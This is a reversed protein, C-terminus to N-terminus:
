KANEQMKNYQLTTNLLLEVENGTEQYSGQNRQAM